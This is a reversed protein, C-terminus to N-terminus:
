RHIFIIPLSPKQSPTIKNVAGALSSERIEMRNAHGLKELIKQVIRRPNNIAVWIRHLLSRVFESEYFALYVRFRIVALKPVIGVGYAERAFGRNPLTRAQQPPIQSSRRLGYTWRRCGRH